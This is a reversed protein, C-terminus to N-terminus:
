LTHGGRDVTFSLSFMHSTIYLLCTSSNLAELSRGANWNNVQGERQYLVGFKFNLSVRHEDFATILDPAQFVSLPLSFSLFFCLSPSLSLSIFPFSLACMKTMQLTCETYCSPRFCKPIHVTFFLYRSTVSWMLDPCLWVTAYCRFLVHDTQTKEIITFTKLLLVTFTWRFYVRRNSLSTITGQGAGCCVPHKPVSVCLFGWAYLM